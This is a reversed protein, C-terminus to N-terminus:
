VIKSQSQKYFMLKISRVISFCVGLSVRIKTYMKKNKFKDLYNVNSGLHQNYFPLVQLGVGSTCCSM